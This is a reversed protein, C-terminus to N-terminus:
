TGKCTAKAAPGCRLIACAKDLTYQDICGAAAQDKMKPHMLGESLHTSDFVLYHGLEHMIVSKFKHENKSSTVIVISWRDDYLHTRGAFEKGVVEKMEIYGPDKSGSKHMTSKGDVMKMETIAFPKGREWGFLLNLEIAGDTATVWEELAEAILEQERETFTNDVLMETPPSCGVAGIAFIVAYKYM